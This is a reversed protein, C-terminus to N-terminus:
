KTWGSEGARQWDCGAYPSEGQFAWPSTLL